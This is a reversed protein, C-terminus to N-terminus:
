NTFEVITTSRLTGMKYQKQKRQQEDQPTYHQLQHTLNILLKYPFNNNRAINLIAKWENNRSEKDLPLSLMRNIYYHYAALKHEM